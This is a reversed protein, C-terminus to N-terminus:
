KALEPRYQWIEKGTAADVAYVESRGTTFYLVGGVELPTGQMGLAQPPLDIAWALGLKADTDTNIQTLPSFRQEDTTRGYGPWDGDDAHGATTWSMALLTAAFLVRQM